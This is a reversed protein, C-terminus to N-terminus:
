KKVFGNSLPTTSHTEEIRRIDTAIVETLTRHRGEPSRWNRQNLQGEVVLRQGRPFLDLDVEALTGFAVVDISGRGSPAARDERDNLELRFQIVPSGDPRYRREPPRAVRGTLIVRNSSTM